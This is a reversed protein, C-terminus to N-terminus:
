HGQFHCWGLLCLWHLTNLFQWQNPLEKLYCGSHLSNGFFSFVSMYAFFSGGFYGYCCLLWFIFVVSIDMELLHTLVLHKSGFSPINM